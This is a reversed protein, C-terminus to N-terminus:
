SRLMIMKVKCWEIIQVNLWVCQSALYIAVVDNAHVSEIEVTDDNM